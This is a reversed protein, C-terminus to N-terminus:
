LDKGHVIDELELYDNLWYTPKISKDIERPGWTVMAVDVGANKACLYDSTNDGIYLVKRKDSIGMDRMSKLIGEEHPKPNKVDDYACIYEILNDLKLLRLCHESTIHMKSTVVGLHGGEKKLRELVEESHPYTKTLSAYLDWSISAFEKMLLDINQNPFEKKLTEKIPPGSFYYIEELPSRRGERYKDYLIYMTQVILEDTDALTGDLDLLVLDYKNM